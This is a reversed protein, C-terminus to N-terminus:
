VGGSIIYDSILRAADNIDSLDVIEAQTHMNREPISVVATKVGSKTVAIHDANTGTRGNCVEIQYSVGSQECLEKFKNFMPKNLNPSTCLMPGKGLAINSYQGSVGPQAAFSVDVSICEDPEVYFAKTKAGTAFTEEQCSLLVVVKYNLEKKSICECVKLLTAVGARNDLAAATIRNGLLQKPEAYFTITDGVSVFENVRDAPLGLDIIVKDIEPAKDENGDSLHPPMCCVVGSIDEKGHVIVPADLVTRLDVGGCKDVRLFGDDTIETVIFGIQDIHADLLITKEANKNGLTAIVNNNYDTQVEAYKALYDECFKSVSKESGSVGSLRCLNFLLDKIENM